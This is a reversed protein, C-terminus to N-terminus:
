KAVWGTNGSGSEKVYLTTSTGGDIRHFTSGVDASIVGEPSGTGTFIGLTSANNLWLNGTVTCDLFSNAGSINDLLNKASHQGMIIDSPGGSSTGFNDGTVWIFSDGGHPLFISPNGDAANFGGADFQGITEYGISDISDDNTTFWSDAKIANVRFADAAGNGDRIYYPILLYKQNDREAIELFPLCSENASAGGLSVGDGELYIYGNNGVRADLSDFGITENGGSGWTLGYDDSTIFFPVNDGATNLAALRVIAIFRGGGLDRTVVEGFNLGQDSNDLATSRLSWSVGNDSSEYYRIFRDSTGYDNITRQGYILEGSEGLVFRTDYGYGIQDGVATLVPTSWTQGGDDSYIHKNSVYTSGNFERIFLIFRGTPTFGGGTCDAENSTTIPDFATHTGTGDVGTWTQGGDTSKRLVLKMDNEQLHTNAVRFLVYLDGTTPDPFIRPSIGFDQLTGLEVNVDFTDRLSLANNDIYEYDYTFVDELYGSIGGGGANIDIRHQSISDSIESLAAEVTTGIYDSGSDTINVESATQNDTNAVTNAITIENGSESLAIGIGERLTISASGSTNSNIISTESDGIGVSLSGENTTSADADNVDDTNDSFGVPVGSLSSWDGNFDDTDDTDINVPIGTLTSWSPLDSKLALTDGSQVISGNISVVEQLVGNPLFQVTGLMLSDTIGVDTDSPVTGDGDLIGDGDAAGGIITQMQDYIANKSAGDTTNGDWTAGYAADSITPITPKNSLDNYDGSFDDTSDEDINVPLDSLDNYSGSFDDTDDTDINVPIGTLTSWSPLDSKLALTDGSQVISGNISVVEQLVGNPLFQVTGLMLSDTIGVDTDSPVTGDGDLIGDGDAAGGIITQMQDYIANKSAGESTNGDWTAGYSEDSITGGGGSASIVFPDLATGSGSISVNTGGTINTESGDIVEDIMVANGTYDIIWINGNPDTVIENLNNTNGSLTPTYLIPSNRVRLNTVIKLTAIDFKKWVGDQTTLLYLSDLASGVVPISSFFKDEQATATWAVTLFLLAFFIKKM